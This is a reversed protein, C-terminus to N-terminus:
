PQVGRQPAASQPGPAVTCPAPAYAAGAGCGAGAAKAALWSELNRLVAVAGPHARLEVRLANLQSQAVPDDLTRLSYYSWAGGRRDSVLGAHRLRALHRSAKSQTIGLAAMLDCVCLERHNMLLWLLNLRAEDALAKFFQAVDKM